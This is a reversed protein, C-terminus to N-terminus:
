QNINDFVKRCHDCIYFMGKRYSDKGCNPCKVKYKEDTEFIEEANKLTIEGELKDLIKNAYRTHIDLVKKVNYNEKLKNCAEECGDEGRLTILNAIIKDYKKITM